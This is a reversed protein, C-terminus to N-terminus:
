ICIHAGRPDGDNVNNCHSSVFHPKVLARYTSATACGLLPTVDCKHFIHSLGFYLNCLSLWGFPGWVGLCKLMSSFNSILAVRANGAIFLPLTMEFAPCIHPLYASHIGYSRSVHSVCTPYNPAFSKLQRGSYRAM